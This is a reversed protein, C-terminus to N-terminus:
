GAQRQGQRTGHGTAPDEVTLTFTGANVLPLWFRGDADTVVIEEQIGQPITECTTRRECRRLLDLKFAESKYTVIVNAGAPTM